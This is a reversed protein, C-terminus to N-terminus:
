SFIVEFDLIEEIIGCDPPSHLNNWLFFLLHM